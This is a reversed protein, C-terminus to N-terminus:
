IDVWIRMSDCFDYLREILYNVEDEVDEYTMDYDEYNEVNDLQNEIEDLDSELEYGDYDEPFKKHIEKWCDGLVRLVESMDESNIANRLSKGSKLTYTWNM